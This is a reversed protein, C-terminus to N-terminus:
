ARAIHRGVIAHAVSSASRPRAAAAEAAGGGTVNAPHKDGANLGTSTSSAQPSPVADNLTARQDRQVRRLALASPRRDDVVALRVAHGAVDLRPTRRQDQITRLRAV